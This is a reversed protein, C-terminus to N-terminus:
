RARDGPAGESVGVVKRQTTLKARQAPTLDRRILAAARDSGANSALKKTHLYDHYRVVTGAKRAQKFEDNMERMGGTKQLEAIRLNVTEVAALARQSVTRHPTLGSAAIQPL